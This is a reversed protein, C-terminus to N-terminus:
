GAVVKIKAWADATAKILPQVIVWGSDGVVIDEAGPASLYQDGMRRNYDLGIEKLDGRQNRYEPRDILKQITHKTLWYARQAWLYGKPMAEESGSYEMGKYRAELAALTRLGLGSRLDELRNGLVSEEAAKGWVEKMDHIVREEELKLKVPAGPQLAGVRKAARTQAQSGVSSLLSDWTKDTQGLVAEVADICSADPSIESGSFGLGGVAEEYQKGLSGVDYGRRGFFMISDKTVGKLSYALASALEYDEKRLAERAVKSVGAIDFHEQLRRVDREATDKALSVSSDLITDFRPPQRGESPGKRKQM